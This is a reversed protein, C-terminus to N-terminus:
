NSRFAKIEQKISTIKRPWPGGNVQAQPLNQISKRALQSTEYNGTVVIYWPQGNRNVAVLRLSDRNPQGAVFKRLGAEQKAGIVQLTYSADPWALVQQEDLTYAPQSKEPATPEESASAQDRTSQDRTSQPQQARSNVALAQAEKELQQTLSQKLEENSDLNTSVPEKFAEVPTQELAPAPQVSKDLPLEANSAVAQSAIAPAPVTSEALATATNNVPMPAEATPTSIAPEVTAAQEAQIGASDSKAAVDATSEISKVAQAAEIAPTQEVIINPAALGVEADDDGIYFLAMIFAALLVVVASMHFLPLGPMEVEEEIDGMDEEFLLTQAQQNIAGPYGGSESWLAQIKDKPLDDIGQYGSASLKFNLYQITEAFNFPKLNVDYVLVDVMEFQDFREVLAFDGSVLIHLHNDQNGQLLSVLASLISDNLHHADDIILAVRNLNGEAMVHRLTAIMEGVNPSPSIPLELQNIIQTFIDGASITASGKIFCCFATELLQNRAESLFATKGVGQEGLVAVVQNGFQCLHIVEELQARREGGSFFDPTASSNTSGTANIMAASSSQPHTRDLVAQELDHPM